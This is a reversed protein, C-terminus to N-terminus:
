GTGSGITDGIVHTRDRVAVVTQRNIKFFNHDGQLSGGDETGYIMLDRDDNM